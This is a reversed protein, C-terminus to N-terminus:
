LAKIVSASHPDYGVPKLAKLWGLRGEVLIHSCGLEHAWAEAEPRLHDIMDQKDGVGWLVGGVRAGGPMERIECLLASKDTTFCKIVNNAVAWDLWEIPHWTPDLQEAFLHRFRPYTM